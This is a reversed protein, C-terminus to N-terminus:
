CNSVNLCKSLKQDPFIEMSFYLFQLHDLTMSLYLKGPIHYMKLQSEFNQLPGIHM